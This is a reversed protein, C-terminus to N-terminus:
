RLEKPIKIGIDDSIKIDNERPPIRIEVLPDKFNGTQKIQYYDILYKFGNNLGLPTSFSINFKKGDLMQKIKKATLDKYYLSQQGTKLQHLNNEWNYFILLLFLLILTFQKKLVFFFDIIVIFIFPYLFIFYYESPRKGYFSFAFPFIIWLFLLAQYFIRYFGKKKKILFFFLFYFIFYFTKILIVQHTIILPKLFYGWVQWWASIDKISHEKGFFFNIFNKTNLFQHRLDFLFLPSFMLVYGLLFLFTKKYELKRLKLQYLTLFFLSFTFIFVFQFHMNNFFGNTIGLWLWNAEKNKKYLQNLCYWNAIVGLPIFIPWWPTIDYVILLYNTTWFVLFFIAHWFSFVKNIILYTFIFFLVNFFIVFYILANPHLNTLLYFPLLLYTFYPALFFGTDNNVRPGLLTLKHNVIIEKIQYSFQEQDWAFPIRKEIQYFRLFSFILFIIVILLYKKSKSLM